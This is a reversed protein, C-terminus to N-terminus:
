LTVEWPATVLVGLGADGAYAEGVNIGVVSGDARLVCSGSSGPNAGPNYFLHGARVRVLKVEVLRADFNGAADKSYGVVYLTEGVEPAAASVPFVHGFNDGEAVEVVGLDRANSVLKPQVVGSRGYSDGWTLFQPGPSIPHGDSMVHRATLAVTESVPCLHGLSLDKDIVMPVLGRDVPEAKVETVTTTVVLEPASRQLIEGLYGAAGAVVLLVLAFYLYRVASQRSM